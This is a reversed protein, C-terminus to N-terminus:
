NKRFTIILRVNILALLKIVKRKQLLHYGREFVEIGCERENNESLDKIKTLYNEREIISKESTYFNYYYVSGDQKKFPLWSKESLYNTFEENTLSKVLEQKQNNAKELLYLFYVDGPHDGLKLTCANQVSDQTIPVNQNPISISLQHYPIWMLDPDKTQNIGLRKAMKQVHIPTIMPTVSPMNEIIKSYFRFTSLMGLIKQPPSIVKAPRPPSPRIGEILKEIDESFKQCRSSPTASVVQINPKYKNPTLKGKRAKRIRRKILDYSVLTSFQDVEEEQSSSDEEKSITQMQNPDQQVSTRSERRPISIKLHEEEENNISAVQIARLNTPQLLDSFTGCNPIQKNERSSQKPSTQVYSSGGQKSIPSSNQSPNKIELVKPKASDQKTEPKKIVSSSISSQRSIQNSTLKQPLLPTLEILTHVKAEKKNTKIHEGITKTKEKQTGIKEAEIERIENKSECNEDNKILVVSPAAEGGDNILLAQLYNDFDDPKDISEREGGESIDKKQALEKKILSARESMASRSLIKYNNVKIQSVNELELISVGRHSEEKIPPSEKQTGKKVSQQNKASGIETSDKTCEDGHPTATKQKPSISGVEKQDAEVTPQENKPINEEEKKNEENNVKHKRRSRRKAVKPKLTEDIATSGEHVQEETKQLSGNYTEEQKTVSGDNEVIPLEPTVKIEIPVSQHNESKNDNEQEPELEQETEQDSGSESEQELEPRKMEEQSQKEENESSDKEEIMEQEAAKKFQEDIQLEQETPEEAIKSNEDKLAFVNEEKNKEEEAVQAFTSKHVEGKQKKGYKLDISGMSNIRKPTKPAAEATSFNVDSSRDKHPTRPTAESRPTSSNNKNPRNKAKELERKQIDDM